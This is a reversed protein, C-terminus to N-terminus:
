SKTCNGRQITPTEVSLQPYKAAVTKECTTNDNDRAKRLLGAEHLEEGGRPDKAEDSTATRDRLDEM